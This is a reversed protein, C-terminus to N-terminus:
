LNSGIPTKPIPVNKLASIRATPINSIGKCWVIGQFEVESKAISMKQAKIKINSKKFCEFIKYIIKIHHSLSKNTAIM